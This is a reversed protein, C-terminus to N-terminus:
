ETWVLVRSGKRDKTDLILGSGRREVDDLTLHLRETDVDIGSDGLFSFDKSPALRLLWFPISVQVLRGSERDYALVRVSQLLTGPKAGSGVDRHLVPQGGMGVEILPQQGAFRARAQTFQEEATQRPTFQTSVHSRIFFAAGGVAAVALVFVVIVAAILVSVWTKRSSQSM